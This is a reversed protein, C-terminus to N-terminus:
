EVELGMKVLDLEGTTTGDKTYDELARLQTAYTSWNTSQSLTEIMDRPVYIYGDQLGEPNYTGNQEGLIHYAQYFSNSYLNYSSGFQRIVLVRLSPCQFTQQSYGASTINYLSLDLIQLNNCGAFAMQMNTVRPIVLKIKKIERCSCFADVINTVNYLQIDIDNTIAYCGNCFREMNTASSYDYNPLSKLKRCSDHMGMFNKVKNTNILPVNELNSCGNYMYSMNEVNETDNYEILETLDTITTNNGFMSKTNKTYDLLQKLSRSSPYVSESNSYDYTEIAGEVKVDNVYATKGALIDNATATADSTNIGGEGRHTGVVGLIKKGKAINEPILNSDEVQAKAVNTVDVEQTTTISKKGSPKVYGDPIKALIGKVIQEAM